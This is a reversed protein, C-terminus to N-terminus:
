SAKEKPSMKPVADGSEGKREPRRAQTARHVKRRSHPRLSPRCIKFAFCNDRVYRVVERFRGKKGKAVRVQQARLRAAKAKFTEEAEALLLAPSPLLCVSYAEPQVPKAQFKNQLKSM